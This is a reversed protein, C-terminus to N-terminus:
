QVPEFAGANIGLVLLQKNIDHNPSAFTQDAGTIGNYTIAALANKLAESDTSDPVSGVAQAIMQVTDYGLAHNEDADVDYESKIAGVFDQVAEDTQVSPFFDTSVWVGNSADGAINVFDPSFMGSPGAIQADIGLERAQKVALGLETFYGPMFVIDAGSQKINNLQASFDQAGATYAEYSVVEGGLNPWEAKVAEAGASGYAGDDYLVAAKTLGKEAALDMLVQMEKPTTSIARFMFDGQKTIDPHTAGPTFCIVKKAQCIPAIPLTEGSLVGGVIIQYGDDVLRQVGSVALTPDAKTDVETTEIKFGGSENLQKVALDFGQKTSIGYVAADGTLPGLFAIKVDKTESSSAASAAVSAAAAATDPAASSGDNASTSNGGCAALLMALAPVVTFAAWSRRYKAM